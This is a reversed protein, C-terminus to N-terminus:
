NMSFVKGDIEKSPNVFNASFKEFAMDINKVTAINEQVQVETKAFFTAVMSKITVIKEKFTTLLGKHTKSLEGSLDEYTTRLQKTETDLNRQIHEFKSDIVDSLEYKLKEIEKSLLSLSQSTEKESYNQKDLLRKFKEELRKNIETMNNNIQDQLNETKSHLEARDNANEDLTAYINAIQADNTLIRNSIDVNAVEM